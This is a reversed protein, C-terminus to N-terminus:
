NIIIKKTSVHGNQLSTKVMLVQNGTQLNSIQFETSNIKKKSFIEQGLVNYITVDNIAEKSATIKVIKNKVSVIIGDSINEFDDTGLTKSTFRLVFRSNFSGEATTFKYDELRLNTTKGTEKDELYVDQNDFIGDAHDISITYDGKSSLKYGLPVQDSKEFPLARGQITLKKNSNISYFDVFNNAGMSVADYNLDIINTAGEIYGLLIQKFVGDSNTFNLWVRNKEIDESAATKYFQGNNGPRRIANNFIVTAAEPRAFFGQAAAIYGNFPTGSGGVTSGSANFATFDSNYYFKGDAPNLIPLSEHGWFYLTGLAPNDTMLQQASIASPYPNGILNWKGDLVPVPITGNNPVGTFEATFNSPVYVDASQPARINYGKGTEMVMKGYYDITWKGADSDYYQYKDWLTNPSLHHM